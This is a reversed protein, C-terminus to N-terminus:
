FRYEASVILRRPPTYQRTVEGGFQNTFQGLVAGSNTINKIVASFTLRPDRPKFRFSLNWLTYGPTRYVHVGDIVVDGYAANVYSHRYEGQFATTLSSGRGLDLVHSLTGMATVSPLNPAPNGYVDYYASSRAAVDQAACASSAFVCTDGYPYQAFTQKDINYGRINDLLLYHETMKSGEVTVNGDFRFGKPLVANMEAEIGYVHLKPINAVGGQYAIADEGEFQLNKYFYYFGAVNLRLKGDLQTTKVGLEWAKITEPDYTYGLRIPAASINGGGPKFGTSWSGYVLTHPAADFEVGVKGTWANNSKSVDVPTSCAYDCISTSNRDQTYRIGGTLRLTHTLHMTAQGYLSWSERTLYSISYFYPYFFGNPSDFGLSNADTVTPFLQNVLSSPDGTTPYAHVAYQDYGVHYDSSLYFGGVIWDVFQGGPSALDVEGTKATSRHYFYQLDHVDTYGYTGGPYGYTSVATALDLGDENVSGNQRVMQWSGLAKLKAWGFDYNLTGTFVTNDYKMIGPWDSTQQWPNPNPDFINKGETEHNRAHAYEARLVLSFKDTPEYLLTIRGHLSNEDSLGYHGNTGPVQTANAYGDHHTGQGAIRVAVTDGIPVNVAGEFQALAYMGTDFHVFGTTQGLKPQATVLNVTGGTSNQGYVTGQPGRVVEVHDVDLFNTNLAVPNAIYVGDVHYSISPQASDNQPVNFGIGRIALNREFGESTSIVLGPVLGNLDVADVVANQKLLDSSLATVALPTRQVSTERKQATVVIDTIPAAAGSAAEGDGDPAAATQALAPAAVTALALASVLGLRRRLTYHGGAPLCLDARSRYKSTRM